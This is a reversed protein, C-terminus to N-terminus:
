GEVCGYAHTHKRSALKSLLPQHSQPMRANQQALTSTAHTQQVAALVRQDLPKLWMDSQFPM